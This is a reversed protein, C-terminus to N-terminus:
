PNIKLILRLLIFGLSLVFLLRLAYALYTGAEGLQLLNVGWEIWGGTVFSFAINLGGKLMDWATGLSVGTFASTTAEGEMGTKITSQYSSWNGFNKSVGTMGFNPDNNQNYLVNMNTVIIALVLLFLIVSVGTEAWSTLSAM